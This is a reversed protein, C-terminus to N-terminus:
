WARRAEDTAVSHFTVNIEKIGIGHKDGIYHVQGAKKSLNRFWLLNSPQM